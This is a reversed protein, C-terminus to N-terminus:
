CKQYLQLRQIGDKTVMQIHSHINMATHCEDKFHNVTMSCYLSIIQLHANWHLHALSYCYLYLEVKTGNKPTEFNTSWNLDTYEGALNCIPASQPQYACQAYWKPSAYNGWEKNSLERQLRLILLLNTSWIDKYMHPKCTFWLPMDILLTTVPAEPLSFHLRTPRELIYTPIVLHSSKLNLQTVQESEWKTGKLPAPNRVHPAPSRGHNCADTSGDEGSEQKSRALCEQPGHRSAEQPAQQIAVQYHSFGVHRLHTTYTYPHSQM